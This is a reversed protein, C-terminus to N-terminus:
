FTAKFKFFTGGLDGFLAQDQDFFKEKDQYLRSRITFLRIELFGVGWVWM